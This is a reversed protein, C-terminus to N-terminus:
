PVRIAGKASSQRCVAAARSLVAARFAASRRHTLQQSNFQGYAILGCGEEASGVAEFPRQSVRHRSQLCKMGRLVLGLGKGLPHIRVPLRTSRETGALGAEM